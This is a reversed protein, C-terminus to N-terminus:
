RRSRSAGTRLERLSRRAAEDVDPWALTFEQACARAHGQELAWLAGYVFGHRPDDALRRLLAGAIVADQHDGLLTQVATARKALRRAPRGLAPALAEAAYRAQKAAKRADHLHEDEGSALAKEARKRLRRWASAALEPLVEGAPADAEPLLPPACALQELRELLALFRQGRLARLLALHATRGSAGLEDQVLGSRAAETALDAPLEDLRALMRMSLVDRDRVEGLAGALWALEAGLGAVRAGDLLPAFTRLASRLRRSAVRMAHVAEGQGQRVYPDAALLAQVQQALYDRVASAASGDDAFGDDASAPAAPVSGLTRALKSGSSAPGAGARGLVKGVKALAKDQGPSLLEVEVERWALAAAGEAPPSSTFRRGQVLDDAVELLPTGDDACIVTVTRTTDIQAVPVLAQGRTRALVLDSLSSPVAGARGPPRAIEDRDAGAPLKLHWGADKGGLRRRLTIGARALRLDATDFYTARLDFTRPPAVVWGERALDPLVFSATASFKREVEIV